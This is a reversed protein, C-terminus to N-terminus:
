AALRRRLRASPCGPRSQRAIAPCSECRCDCNVEIQKRLIPLVRDIFWIASEYNPPFDMTGTFIIQNKIKGIANVRQEDVGNLLVRNRGARGNVSDLCRKDVPSVTLNLASRKGNYREEIWTDALRWLSKLARVARYNQLDIRLQRRHYLVYSDVWDIMTPLNKNIEPLVFLFDRSSFLCVDIQRTAITEKIAHTVPSQHKRLLLNKLAPFFLLHALKGRLRPHRYEVELYDTIVQQQKLSALSRSTEVPDDSKRNMVVLHVEHGDGVLERGYNFLRLNGGHAGGSRYDLYALWLIRLKPQIRHPRARYGPDATRALDIRAEARM